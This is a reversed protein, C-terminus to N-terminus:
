VVLHDIHCWGVQKVSMHHLFILPAALRSAYDSHMGVTCYCRLVWADSTLVDCLLACLYVSVFVDGLLLASCHQGIHGSRSSSM